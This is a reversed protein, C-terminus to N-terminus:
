TFSPGTIGLSPTSLRSILQYALGVGWPWTIGLSPTSLSTSILFLLLDPLIVTIGLSPTSLARREKEIEAKRVEQSGSLPLQFDVRGHGEDADEPQQRSGSLPLQFIPPVTIITIMSM